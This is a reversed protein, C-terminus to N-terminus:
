SDVWNTEDNNINNNNNNNNNSSRGLGSHPHKVNLSFVVV